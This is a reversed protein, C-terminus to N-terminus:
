FCFLLHQRPYPSVPVRYMTALITCSSHFVMNLFLISNSYSQAIESLPTYRFSSFITDLLSLQVGMIMSPDNMFVLSHSWGFHGDISSHFPTYIHILHFIIQGNFLLFDYWMHCCSHGQSCEATHFILWDSFIFAHNM